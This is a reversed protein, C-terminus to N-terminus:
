PTTVASPIITLGTILSSMWFRMLQSDLCLRTNARLQNSATQMYQNGSFLERNSAPTHGTEDGHEVKLWGTAPPIDRAAGFLATHVGGLSLRHKANQVLLIRLLAAKGM